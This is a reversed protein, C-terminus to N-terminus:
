MEEQKSLGYDEGRFRADLTMVEHGYRMPEISFAQREAETAEDYGHFIVAHLEIVEYSLFWEGADDTLQYAPMPRYNNILSLSTSYSSCTDLVERDHEDTQTYAQMIDIISVNQRDTTDLHRAERTIVYLLKDM